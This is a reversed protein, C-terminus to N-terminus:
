YFFNKSPNLGWISNNKNSHVGGYLVIDDGGISLSFQERGPPFKKNCYNYYAFIECKGHINIPVYTNIKDKDKENETSNIIINDTELINNSSSKNDKITQNDKFSTSSTVAFKVNKGINTTAKDLSRQTVGLSGSNTTNNIREIKAVEHYFTENVNNIELLRNNTNSIKIFKNNNEEQKLRNKVMEYQNYKLMYGRKFLEEETTQNINKNNNLSIIAEEPNNYGFDDIGVIIENKLNNKANSSKHLSSTLKNMEEIMISKKSNFSKLNNLKNDKYKSSKNYISNEEKKYSKLKNNWYQNLENEIVEATDYSIGKKKDNKNILTIPNQINEEDSRNKSTLQQIASFQIPNIKEKKTTPLGSVEVKYNKLNKSTQKIFSPSIILQYSKNKLDNKMFISMLQDKINTDTQLYNKKNSSIHKIDKMKFSTQSNNSDSLDLKMNRKNKM